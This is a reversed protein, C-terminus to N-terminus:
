ETSTKMRMLLTSISSSISIAKDELDLFDGEALHGIERSIVLQTRLKATSAKALRLFRILEAPTDREKGDAINSVISVASRRLYDRLVFDKSLNGNMSAQYIDVALNRAKQWCDMNEFNSINTMKKGRNLSVDSHSFFRVELFLQCIKPM